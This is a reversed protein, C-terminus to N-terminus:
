PMQLDLYSTPQHKGGPENHEAFADSQPHGGFFYYDYGCLYVFNGLADLFGNQKAIEIEIERLYSAKYMRTNELEKTLREIHADVLMKVENLTNIIDEAELSIALKAPDVKLKFQYEHTESM